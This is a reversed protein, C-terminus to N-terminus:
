RKKRGRHLRTLKKALKTVNVAPRTLMQTLTHEIIELADLLEERSVDGDHSATNGFWKVAM